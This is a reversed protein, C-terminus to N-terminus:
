PKKFKNYIDVPNWKKQSYYYILQGYNITLMELFESSNYRTNNITVNISNRKNYNQESKTAWKCNSPLYGSSNDIRDISHSSTPKAGMDEFFYKFDLLWRECVTIGRGGYLHYEKYKPNTCRNIMAHYSKYEARYTRGDKYKLSTINEKAVCGCSAKKGNLFKNPNCRTINGCDCQLILIVRSQDIRFEQGILKVKNIKTGILHSYDRKVM